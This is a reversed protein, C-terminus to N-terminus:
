YVYQTHTRHSRPFPIDYQWAENALMFLKEQHAACVAQRTGSKFVSRYVHWKGKKTTEIYSTRFWAGVM